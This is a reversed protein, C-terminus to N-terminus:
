PLLFEEKSLVFRKKRRIEIAKGHWIKRLEEVDMLLKGSLPDWIDVKVGVRGMYGVAHSEQGTAPHDVFLLAPSNVANLDSEQVYIKQCSFGFKEMGYVVQAVCTGFMTTGLTKAM